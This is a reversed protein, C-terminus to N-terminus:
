IRSPVSLSIASTSFRCSSRSKRWQWFEWAAAMAVSGYEALRVWGFGEPNGRYMFYFDLYYLGLVGSLWILARVPVLVLFPIVWTFYWPNAMPLLLFFCVLLALMAAWLRHLDGSDQRVWRVIGLTVLLLIAGATGRAVWETWAAEFGLQSIIWALGGYLGENVRWRGAFHGLGDWLVPGASFFPLYAMAMLAGAVALGQITQRRSRKFAWGALPAMLLLPALKMLGASALALFSLRIRGSQLALIMLLLGLVVFADVHLSNGFEKLILPSWGYLLAWELPLRARSLIALILALNALDALFVLFRWGGLSWPTLGQALAFLGQALPPYVTRIGPHNVRRHVQRAADTRISAQWRELSPSAAPASYAEDPPHLYPNAGHLVANGDWLYRYPDTEQIPNSSFLVGRALFSVTLIWALRWHVGKFQPRRSSVSRFVWLLAASGTGFLAVFPLLPRELYGAGFIFFRSLFSFGVSVALIALGGIALPWTM